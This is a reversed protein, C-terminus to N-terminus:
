RQGYLSRASPDLFAEDCESALADRVKQEMDDVHPHVPAAVTSQVPGLEPLRSRIFTAMVAHVGAETVERCGPAWYRGRGYPGTIIEYSPFYDVAPYERVAEDVAARLISKSASTSVMVNRREYTAALGVPSVTLLIRARPNTELILEITRQLDARVDSFSYNVFRHLDASFTGAVVGPVIPYTYRGSGNEWAETLGLTFVLADMALLMAHVRQLHFLRDARAHDVNAFGLPVARPRLMDVIRGDERTAFDCIPARLGLAQELLERLQRVTYINGFRGSFTGYGHDASAPILPHRAESILLMGGRKALERGFHQAFCSGATAFAIKPSFTFKRGFDFDVDAESPLDASAKWYQQRPLKDYPNM